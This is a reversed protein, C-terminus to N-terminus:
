LDQKCIHTEKSVHNAGEGAHNHKYSCTVEDSERKMYIYPKDPNDDQIIYGFFLSFPDDTVRDVFSLRYIHLGPSKDLSDTKVKIWTPSKRVFSDPFIIPGHEKDLEAAEYFYCESSIEPGLHIWLYYEVQDLNLVPTNRAIDKYECADIQLVPLTSM